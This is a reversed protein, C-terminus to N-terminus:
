TECRWLAVQILLDMVRMMRMYHITKKNLIIRGRMLSSVIKIKIDREHSLGSLLAIWISDHLPHKQIRELKSYLCRSILRKVPHKLSESTNM